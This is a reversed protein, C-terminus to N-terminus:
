PSRRPSAFPNKVTLFDFRRFDADRTYLTTVGNQKLVTALHADSILNGRVPQRATAKFAEWFGERDHLVRVHDLALLADLNAVADRWNLPSPFISPHTSIRLYAMLTGATLCMTEERAACAALFGQALHRDPSATNSAYLLVNADLAYSM